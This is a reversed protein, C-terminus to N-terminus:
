QQHKSIVSLCMVNPAVGGPRIILGDRLSSVSLVCVCSVSKWEGLPVRFRLGLLRCYVWAKSQAAVPVPVDSSMM